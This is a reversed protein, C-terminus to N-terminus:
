DTAGGEGAVVGGETLAIVFVFAQVDGDEFFARLEKGFHSNGTASAAVHRVSKKIGALKSLTIGAAFFREDAGKM